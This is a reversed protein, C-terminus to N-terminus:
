AAREARDIMEALERWAEYENGQWNIVLFPQRTERKVAGVAVVGHGWRRSRTIDIYGLDAIHERFPQDANTM